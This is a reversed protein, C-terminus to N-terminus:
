SSTATSSLYPGLVPRVDTWLSQAMALNSFEGHETVHELVTHRYLMVILVTAGLLAIASAISFYRLLPFM